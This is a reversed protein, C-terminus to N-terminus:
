NIGIMENFQKDCCGHEALRQRIFSIKEIDTVEHIKWDRRFDGPDNEVPGALMVLAPTGENKSPIAIICTAFRDKDGFLGSVPIVAYRYPSALAEREFEQDEDRCKEVDPRGYRSLWIDYYILTGNSRFGDGLEDISTAMRRDHKMRHVFSNQASTFIKRMKTQANEKEQASIEGGGCLYEVVAKGAEPRYVIVGAVAIGVAIAVTILGKM